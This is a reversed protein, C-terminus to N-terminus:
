AEPRMVSKLKELLGEVNPIWSRYRFDPEVYLDQLLKQMIAKAEETQGLQNLAMGLNLRMEYTDRVKTSVSIGERLLAVSRTLSFKEFDRNAYINALNNYALSITAQDIKREIVREYISAAEELKKADQLTLAYNSLAINSAPAVEIVNKWLSLSDTWVTSYSISLSGFTILIVFGLIARFRSPILSITFGALGVIPLYLYRDNVYNIRPIFHLVPLLFIFFWILCVKRFKDNSQFTWRGVIIVAVSAILALVISISNMTFEPYIASLNAPWVCRSLYIGISEFIKVFLDGRWLSNSHDVAAKGLGSQYALIRVTSVLCSVIAFPLVLITSEKWSKSFYIRCIAFLLIPLFVGNTKALCAVAFSLNSFVYTGKTKWRDLSLLFLLLSVLIFCGSLMGKRESLWMVSEVQVPHVLFICATFISFVQDATIRKILHFVLVANLIHFLLNEVHMIQPDLGFVFNDLWFSMLTVPFYDGHFFTSWSVTLAEIFKIKLLPNDVILVNDDWNLFGASFTRFFILSGIIVAGLHVYWSNNRVVALWRNYM